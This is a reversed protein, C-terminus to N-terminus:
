IMGERIIGIAEGARALADRLRSREPRSLRGVDVRSGPPLGAEIDAIQQRLMIALVFRHAEIASTVWADSALGGEAAARLRDATSRRPMNSKISMIRAATFFPLLGSAKLDVRGDAGTRFGGLFKVPARWGALTEQLARLFTPAGAGREYAYRWIDDGLRRAGHVPMADFFIDVNLLDEPKQRTVWGDVTARWNDLSRRWPANRAMVGGKCYPIGARDLIDAIHGGLEEFWLDEPGGPEGSQFVIANDQDAALLSEGRGASGLVLVAYPVPARGKGAEHMRAEGIEAARRTMAQIEASIVAATQRSDAGEEALLRAMLPTRAWTQGLRTEDGTAIEDGLLMATSARHRLLNRTTVAGVLRGDKDTVGLHRIGLRDMRGIARYVFDDERVTQLPGKRVAALPTSLVGDGRDHLARLVDRETVIGTEGEDDTVFVSSIGREILLEVADRLTAEAALTAPPASMVERVRRRYPYSDIRELAAAVPRFEGAPSSSSIDGPSLAEHRKASLSAREAEALTRIGAGRLMSALGAFVKATALADGIATHRGEIEIGLWACLGDLSYDALAPDALRALLRVDLSRFEPWVTGSREAERRLIEIDFEISHGVVVNEGIFDRVRDLVEKPGPADAVATDDIGHIETSSRPIPIDPRVLSELTELPEPNEGVIRVAGVQVLRATAPDLGTTETDLVVVDLASLPTSGVIGGPLPRATQHEGERPADPTSDQGDTM